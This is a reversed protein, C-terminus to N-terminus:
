KRMEEIMSGIRSRLYATVRDYKSEPTPFLGTAVARPKSLVDRACFPEGFRVKIKAPRIKMSRRPWVKHLGDIAVPLIPLGLEAALIAAGNKFEHLEGDYAREGEPYINLIKGRRLGIACAKMAKMLQTDPDVPVIHLMSAVFSMVRGTFLYSAGIHFSNKFFDFSYLSCVLFPDLFSQHNPCVIFPRKMQRLHEIGTVELRLFIRCLLNFTKYASFVFALFFPRNKLARKLEPIEDNAHRLITGWTDSGSGPAAPRKVVPEFPGTAVARPESKKALEILERVTFARAADQTGFEVGLMMEVAAFTEARSLSDLGLDLELSMDPHIAASDPVTRGIISVVAQGASSALLDDDATTLERIRAEGNPSGSEIAKKLAFRDIMGEGTRPLPDVRVIYDRVRRDPALERGLDDLAYRIAERSICINSLKLYEFDPVVVAALRKDSARFVGLEKVLPTKSYHIELEEPDISVGSPLMIVDRENEITYPDGNQDPQTICSDTM